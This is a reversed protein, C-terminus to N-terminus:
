LLVKKKSKFQVKKIFDNKYQEYTNWIYWINKIVKKDIALKKQKENKLYKMEQFWQVHCYAIM